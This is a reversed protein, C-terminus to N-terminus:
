SGEPLYTIETYGDKKMTRHRAEAEEATLVVIEEVDDANVLRYTGALFPM